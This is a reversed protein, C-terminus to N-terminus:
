KPTALNLLWQKFFDFLEIKFICIYWKFEAIYKDLDLYFLTLICTARAGAPVEDMGAMEQERGSSIGGM